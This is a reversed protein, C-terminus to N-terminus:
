NLLISKLTAQMSRILPERSTSPSRLDHSLLGDFIVILMELREDLEEISTQKNLTRVLIGRLQERQVAGYRRVIDEVRPNRAAEAFIELRLGSREREANSAVIEPVAALMHDALDHGQLFKVEELRSEVESVGRAVIAEIIAEKNKYYRYIIGVSIGAEAAIDAITTGHFGHRMVCRISADLIGGAREERDIRPKRNSKAFAM